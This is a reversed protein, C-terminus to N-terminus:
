ALVQPIFGVLLEGFDWRSGIGRFDGIGHMFISPKGRRYDDKWGATTKSRDNGIGKHEFPRRQGYGRRAEAILAVPGQGNMDKPPPRM